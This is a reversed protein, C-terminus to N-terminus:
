GRGRLRQAEESVRGAVDALSFAARRTEVVDGLDVAGKVQGTLEEVEELLELLEARRKGNSFGATYASIDANSANLPPHYFPHNQTDDILHGASLVTLSHM